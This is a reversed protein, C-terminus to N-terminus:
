KSSTRSMFKHMKLDGAVFKMTNLEDNIGKVKRKAEEQLQFLNAGEEENSINLFSNLLAQNRRQGIMIKLHDLDLHNYQISRIVPPIEKIKRGLREIVHYKEEIIVNNLKGMSNGFGIVVRGSAM